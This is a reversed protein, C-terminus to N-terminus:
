KLKSWSMVQSILPSTLSIPSSWGTQQTAQASQLQHIYGKSLDETQTSHDDMVTAPNAILQSLNSGIASATTLGLRFSAQALQLPSQSRKVEYLASGLKPVYDKENKFADLTIGVPFSTEPAFGGMTRVIVRDEFIRSVEARSHEKLLRAEVRRLADATIAGGQSHAAVFLNRGRSLTAYFREATDEAIHTEEGSLNRIAEGVDRLTGSVEGKVEVDTPNYLLEFDVHQISQQVIGERFDLPDLVSKGVKRLDVVYAERLSMTMADTDKQASARSTRIGNIYFHDTNDTKAMSSIASSVDYYEGFVKKLASPPQGADLFSLSTEGKGMAPVFVIPQANDVKPAAAVPAKDIPVVATRPKAASGSTKPVDAPRIQMSM